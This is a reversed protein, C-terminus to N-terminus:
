LNFRFYVIDGDKVEYDKGEVRMLGKEKVAQESKLNMIDTYKM